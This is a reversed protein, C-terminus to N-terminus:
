RLDVRTARMVYDSQFAMLWDGTPSVFLRQATVPVNFRETFVGDAIRMATVTMNAGLYLVTGDPSLASTPLMGDIAPSSRLIHFDVDYAGNGLSLRQGAADFTFGRWGQQMMGLQPWEGCPTFSDTAAVYSRPCRLDYMLIRSRDPTSTAISVGYPDASRADRRVAQAGTNLDVTIIQDGGLTKQPLTVLARGNAAVRVVMPVAMPPGIGATDLVSLIITSPSATPQTLDVVALSRTNPLAIILSDGSVTLDLGTSPGSITIPTRFTMTAVDLVAIENKGYQVLYFVKRKADYALDGLQTLTYPSPTAVAPTSTPHAVLPYFRVSDQVSSIVNSRLASADRVYLSMIPAGVWEPKVPIATRWTQSAGRVPAPLSDRVNAPAGLEWVLWDVQDNDTATVVLRLSEGVAFQGAFTNSAFSLVSALVPPTRDVVFTQTQVSRSSQQLAGDEATVTIGIPSNKVWGAPVNLHVTRTVSNTGNEAFSRRVLFPGSAVVTTSWLPYASTASYTVDIGGGPQVEGTAPTVDIQGVVPPAYTGSPARPGCAFRTKAKQIEASGDTLYRLEAEVEFPASATFGWDAQPRDSSTIRQGWANRVQAVPVAFSDVPVTRAAGVYFRAVGDQWTATGPGTASATITVNCNIRLGDATESESHTPTSNTLTIALSPHPATSDRCTIALLALLLPTYRFSPVIRLVPFHTRL